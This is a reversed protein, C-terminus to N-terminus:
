PAPRFYSQNTYFEASQNDACWNPIGLLPIPKLPKKQRYLNDTIVDKSLRQDLYTLQQKIPMEFFEQPVDVALWKGTLGVFPNLLMELNAHGFVHASIQQNWLARKAFLVEHWQHLMLLEILEPNSYALVVGCEDFHTLINRKKTRPSVGYQGIDEVHQHNLLRKTAPFLQWILGNFLDHWCNPRTPIIDEKFIIEEYYGASEPIESQCKFTPIDLSLDTGALQNLGLANPWQSFKSLHFISDLDNFPALHCQQNYASNWMASLKESM